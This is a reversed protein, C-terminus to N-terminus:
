FGRGFFDVVGNMGVGGQTLGHHLRRRGDEPFGDVDLSWPSSVDFAVIAFSLGLSVLLFQGIVVRM